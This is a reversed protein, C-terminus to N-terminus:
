HGTGSGDPSLTYEAPAFFVLVTLAETITHFRHEVEAEVFVISGQRVERDEEGVRISASGGIVYYVEDESHPQQPDTASAQLHYIGVSLSASRLFELYSRGGRERVLQSIEFAKM